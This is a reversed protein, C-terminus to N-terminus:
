DNLTYLLHCDYITFLECILLKVYNAIKNDRLLDGVCGVYAM